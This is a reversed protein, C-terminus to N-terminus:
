GSGSGQLQHGSVPALAEPGSTVAKSAETNASRLAKEYTFEVVADWSAMQKELCEVIEPTSPKDNCQDALASQTPSFTAALLAACVLNRTKM